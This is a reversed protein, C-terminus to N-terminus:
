FSCKEARLRILIPMGNNMMDEAPSFQSLNNERTDCGSSVTNVRVMVISSERADECFQISMTEDFRIVGEKIAAQFITRNSNTIEILPIDQM